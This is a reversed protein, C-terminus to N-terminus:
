RLGASMSRRLSLALVLDAVLAVAWCILLTWLTHSPYHAGRVTQVAGFLLGGGVVCGLAWWGQVRLGAGTRWIVPVWPLFLLAASAHGGPFCRGPGGDAVGWTLHSVYQAVGGFQQLDWPCSTLSNRKVANVALLAATSALGGVWRHWTPVGKLWGWPKLVLVWMAVFVVTMVTRARDHLVKELWLNDRLGFGRADGWWSMAAVDLGAWEWMLTLVLLILFGQYFGKLPSKSEFLPM